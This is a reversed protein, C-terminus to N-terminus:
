SGSGLGVVSQVSFSLEHRFFGVVFDQLFDAL